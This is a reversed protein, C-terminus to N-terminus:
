IILTNIEMKSFIMFPFILQRFQWSQTSNTLPNPSHRLFGGVGKTLGFVLSAKVRERKGVVRSSSQHASIRGRLVSFAGTEGEM